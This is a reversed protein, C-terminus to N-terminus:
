YAQVIKLALARQESEGLSFATALTRLRELLEPDTEQGEEVAEVAAALYRGAPLNKAQFGGQQDPRAMTVHRSMFGWRGPDESFILVAYDAVPRGNADTVSGSVSNSSASLVVQLGSVTEGPKFAVGSDTVDTGDHLVAKLTFGPPMRFSRILVPSQMARLEFSWDDDVGDRMERGGFMMPADPNKAMANVAVDSPKVGTAGGQVVVRGRIATGRTGMLTVGTVDEGGVSVSAFAAEPEDDSGGRRGPGMGMGMERAELVYDGPTVNPLVFTGDERVRNGGAGFMMMMGGDGQRVDERLMVFAGAMPKGSSDVATGTIKVTRVPLLSFSIGSMEGGLGVTVRDAQQSSGTGPYYTPAYSTTSDSSEVGWMGEPRITASVYYDGPSLGFLRFNGIDDTQAFRGTPVLRRGGNFYRYRMAAVMADAVPEGFEDVIRGTIVSGRPLNFNVNELTQGDTLEIPRGREFPRRQGYSLQVYGGKSASLTYRGAPLDKLEWRGEEDTSAIRGERFEQGQLRVIARRLPQGAEGGVVRGRMRATGTRPATNDRPGTRPGPRQAMFVGQAEPTALGPSLEGVALGVTALALVVLRAPNM